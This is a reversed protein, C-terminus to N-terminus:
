GAGWGLPWLRMALVAGIVALMLADVRDLVGGHGPILTGSDKVGFSRKFVSMALDGGVSALAVILAFPIVRVLDLGFLSGTAWGAACGAVVGALFGSWTKKPSAQPLLKPGGIWTGVLYALSDAAWVISFLLIVAKLGHDPEARMSALLAASLSVYLIGLVESSWGRRWREIGSALTGAAGWALADMVNTQGALLVTGSATACAIAYAVPPADRDSMHIWEWAMAAAFAAVWATFALDGVWLLVVALPGLILASILRRRFVPDRPAPM